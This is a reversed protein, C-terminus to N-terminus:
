YEEDSPNYLAVVDWELTPKVEGKRCGGGCPRIGEKVADRFGAYRMDAAYCAKSEEIYLQKSAEDVVKLFAERQRKRADEMANEYKRKLELLSMMGQRALLEAGLPTPKVEPLKAEELDQAAMRIAEEMEADVESELENYEEAIDMDQVVRVFMYTNLDLFYEYSQGCM